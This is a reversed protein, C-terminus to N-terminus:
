PQTDQLIANVETFVLGREGTNVDLWWTRYEHTANPLPQKTTYFLYADDNSWAVGGDKYVYAGLSFSRLTPFGQTPNSGDYIIVRAMTSSDAALGGNSEFLVALQDSRNAWAQTVLVGGEKYRKPNAGNNDFAVLNPYDRVTIAGNLPAMDADLGKILPSATDPQVSAGSISKVFTGCFPLGIVAQTHDFNAACYSFLRRDKNRNFRMQHFEYGLSPKNRVDNPGYYIGPEAVFQEVPQQKLLRGADDYAFIDYSFAPITDTLAVNWGGPPETTLYKKAVHLENDLWAPALFSDAPLHKMIRVNKGNAQGAGVFWKGEHEIYLSMQQTKSQLAQPMAAIGKEVKDNPYLMVNDISLYQPTTSKDLWDIVVTITANQDNLDAPFRSRPLEFRHRHWGGPLDMYGAIAAVKDLKPVNNEYGDIEAHHQPLTYDKNSVIVGIRPKRNALRNLHIDLMLTYKEAGDSLDVGTQSFKYGHWSKFGGNMEPCPNNNDLRLVHKHAGAEQVFRPNGCAHWAPSKQEFTPDTLLNDSAVLPAQLKANADEYANNVVVVSAPMPPPPEFGNTFITTAQLFGSVFLMWGLGWLVTLQKRIMKMGM